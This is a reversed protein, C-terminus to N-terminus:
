IHVCFIMIQYSAPTFYIQKVKFIYIYSSISLFDHINSTKLARRFDLFVRWAKIKYGSQQLDATITKQLVEQTWCSVCSWFYPPKHIQFVKLM